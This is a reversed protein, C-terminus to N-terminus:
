SRQKRRLREEKTKQYLVSIWNGETFVGYQAKEQGLLEETFTPRERNGCPLFSSAILFTFGALGFAGSVLLLAPVQAGGLVLSAYQVGLTSLFSGAVLSLGIKIARKRYM